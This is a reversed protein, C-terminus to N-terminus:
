AKTKAKGRLRGRAFNYSQPPPKSPQEGLRNAWAVVDSRWWVPRRGLFRPRPFDSAAAVLLRKITMHSVGLLAQVEATYLLRDDQPHPDTTM